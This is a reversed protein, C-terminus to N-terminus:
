ELKALMEKPSQVLFKSLNKVTFGQSSDGHIELSKDIAPNTSLSDKLKENYIELMSVGIM